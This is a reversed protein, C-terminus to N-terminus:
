RNEFNRTKPQECRRCLTGRGTKDHTKGPNIDCKVAKSCRKEVATQIKKFSEGSTAPSTRRAAGHGGSGGGGAGHQAADGLGAGGTGRGLSRGPQTADWEVGGGGRGVNHEPHFIIIERGATGVTGGATRRCHALTGGM